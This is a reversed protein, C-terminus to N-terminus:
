GSMKGQERVWSRKRFFGRPRGTKADKPIDTLVPAALGEVDLQLLRGVGATRSSPGYSDRPFFGSTGNLYLHSQRVNAETIRILRTLEKAM